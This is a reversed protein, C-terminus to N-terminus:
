QCIGGVNQTPPPCILDPGQQTTNQLDLTNTLLTVLGWVSVIVFIGIIGWIMNNKAKKKNEDDSSFIYFLVSVIFWVVALSILIPVLTNLVNSFLILIDGLTGQGQQSTGSQGFVSQARAVAMPLVAIVALLSSYVLTKLKM